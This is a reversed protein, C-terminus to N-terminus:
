SLVMTTCIGFHDSPYLGTAEDPRNLVVSSNIFKPYLDTGPLPLAFIHDVGIMKNDGFAEALSYKPAAGAGAEYTDIAATIKFFTAIEASELTANFDGCVLRYRYTKDATVFRGLAEAQIKRFGAPEQLHTLHTNTITINEGNPLCIVAQQVKRDNDQPISPLAFQRVSVIPYTSLIGLGSLSEIWKGEFLRKKERGPLFYYKMNLEGALFKLTDANGEVSYYCEQCAVIDPKLHKLQEATIRMRLAYNGDCKWTNLTIIKLSVPQQM